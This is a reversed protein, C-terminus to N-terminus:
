RFLGKLGNALAVGGIGLGLANAATNSYLPTQTSGSSYNGGSISALYRQLRQDPEQMNFNYRNIQDQLQNGAMTEQQQGVQGLAAINQYDLASQQPTLSAARMQNTRENAYNQGYIQNALNNYSDAAVSQNMGSGLRGASNFQSDMQARVKGAAQDFMGDLYPNSNLFDGRMTATLNDNTAGELASGGARATQMGQAQLTADSFPVVTSNPFYQQPTEFRDQAFGYAQQLYPQQSSWPANNQVVTQTGSSGGGSPM